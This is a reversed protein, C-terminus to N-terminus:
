VVIDQEEAERGSPEPSYMAVRHFSGNARTDALDLQVLLSTGDAEDEVYSQPDTGTGGSADLVPSPPACTSPSRPGADHDVGRPRRGLQAGRPPWRAQCSAGALARLGCALRRGRARQFAKQTARLAYELPLIGEDELLQGNLALLRGAVGAAHRAAARAVCLRWAALAIRAAQPTTGAAGARSVVRGPRTPPAAAGPPARPAPCGGPRAERRLRRVLGRGLDELTSTTPVGDAAGVDSSDLGAHVSVARRWTALAARLAAIAAAGRPLAARGAVPMRGIDGVARSLPSTRNREKVMPKARAHL